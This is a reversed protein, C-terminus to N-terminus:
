HLPATFTPPTEEEEEEVVEKEEEKEEKIIWLQATKCSNSNFAKLTLNEKASLVSLVVFM